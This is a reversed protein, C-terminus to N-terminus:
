RSPWPSSGTVPGSRIATMPPSLPKRRMTDIGRTFSYLSSLHRGTDISERPVYTKETSRAPDEAGGISVERGEMEGQAKRLAMALNGGAVVMEVRGSYVFGPQYRARPNSARFWWAFGLIAAITPVVIVLMIFVSDILITTNAAAVPGQPDLLNM